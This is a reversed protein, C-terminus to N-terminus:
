KPVIALMYSVVQDALWDRVTESYHLGDVTDSASKWTLGNDNSTRAALDVLRVSRNAALSRILTNIQPIATESNAPALTTLIFHDPSHGSNVWQDIMWGLNAATTAPSFSAAPDNTGM